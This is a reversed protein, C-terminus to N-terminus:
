EDDEDDGEVEGDEEGEAEEAAQVAEEEGVGDSSVSSGRNVYSSFTIVALYLLAIVGAHILMAGYNTKESFFSWKSFVGVDNVHPITVLLGPSFILALGFVLFAMQYNGLTM